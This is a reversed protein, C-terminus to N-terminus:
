DEPPPITEKLRRRAAEIRRDVDSRGHRGPLGTGPSPHHERGIGLATSVVRRLRTGIV